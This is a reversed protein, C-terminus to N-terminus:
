SMGSEDTTISKGRGTTALAARGTTKLSAHSSKTPEPEAVTPAGLEIGRGTTALAARGTRKFTARSQASVPKLNWGESLANKVATKGTTAYAAMARAKLAARAEAKGDGEILVPVKLVMPVLGLCNLQLTIVGSTLATTPEQSLVPVKLEVPLQEEGLVPMKLEMPVLELGSLQMREEALVPVNLQVKLERRKREEEALRAEAASVDVGLFKAADIARRLVELEDPSSPSESPNYLRQLRYYQDDKGLQALARQLTREALQKSQAKKPNVDKALTSALRNANIQTAVSSAMPRRTMSSKQPVAGTGSDSSADTRSRAGELADDTPLSPNSFLQHVASELNSAVDAVATQFRKPRVAYFFTCMFVIIVLTAGFFSWGVIRGVDPASPPLPPPPFPNPAFTSLVEMAATGGTLVQIGLQNGLVAQLGAATTPLLQVQSMVNQAAAQDTVSTSFTISVSSAVVSVQTNFASVSCTPLSGCVAGVYATIMTQRTDDNFMEPTGEATFSYSIIFTQTLYTTESGGPPYQPPPPSPPLRDFVEWAYRCVSPAHVTIGQGHCMVISDSSACQFNVAARNLCGTKPFVCTGNLPVTVTDDNNLPLVPAIFGRVRTPPQKCGYRAIVCLSPDHVTASSSYNVNLGDFPSALVFGTAANNQTPMMCGVVRPICWTRSNLNAEPDYNVATSDMCGEIAITCNTLVTALPDYNLVVPSSYETESVTGVGRLASGYYGSRFGPTRADVGAYSVSNITCGFVPEICSDDAITALANFNLASSSMCGTTPFICDGVQRAAPDYNAAGALMCGKFYDFATGHGISAKVGIDNTGSANTGSANTGSVNTGSANTGSANTSSATTGSAATGSAATGSSSDGKCFGPVHVEAAADFAVDSSIMCGAILPRTSTFHGLSRAPSNTPCRQPPTSEHYRVQFTGYVNDMSSVRGCELSGTDSTFCFGVLLVNSQTANCRQGPLEVASNCHRIWQCTSRGVRHTRGIHEGIQETGLISMSHGSSASGVPHITDLYVLTGAASDVAVARDTRTITRRGCDLCDTGITCEAFEAGPGGDDCHSDSAFECSDFCASNADGWLGTDSPPEAMTPHVFFPASETLPNSAYICM